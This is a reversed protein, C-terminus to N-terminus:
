KKIVKGGIVEGIVASNSCLWVEGEGADFVIPGEIRTGSRLELVQLADYSEIKRIRVSLVSCGSLSIKQAAVSLGGNFKTNDASISGNIFAEGSLSCNKLSAQGNVEMTALASEDARLSGNVCTPGSVKTGELVLSGNISISPITEKQYVRVGYGKDSQVPTEMSCGKGWSLFIPAILSVLFLQKM